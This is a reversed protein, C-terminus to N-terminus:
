KQVVLKKTIGGEPRQLLVFYVGSALNEVLYEEQSIPYSRLLVGNANYLNVAQVNRDGQLRFFSKAPNPYLVLGEEQSLDELALTENAKHIDITFDCVTGRNKSLKNNDSLNGLPSLDDWDVKFRARTKGLKATKPITFSPMQNPVNNMGVVVGKSDVWQGDKNCVSYSVLEDADFKKNHNYDIYFYYHMWTLDKVKPVLTLENGISAQLVDKTNDFVIQSQSSADEGAVITKFVQAKDKLKAGEVSISQIVRDTGERPYKVEDWVPYDEDNVLEKKYHRVWDIEMELPLDNPNVNGVWGGGLQMSLILHMERYFPFQGKSDLSPDRKYEFTKLGNIYFILKEKQMEVGFTNFENANFRSTKHSGSKGGLNQTYNSHVTQYVFNDFNLHEMIDIEGELPWAKQQKFPMLWIAPWAGKGSGLKARIEVKGGMFAHKGKTWLGGTLYPDKPDGTAIGKLVLKGDRVEFLREDDSMTNKWDPRGRPIKSWTESDFTTGDFNDEWVIKWRYREQALLTNSVFANVLFLSSLVINRFRKAGQSVNTRVM